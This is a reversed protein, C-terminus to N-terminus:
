ILFRYTNDARVWMVLGLDQTARYMAAIIQMSSVFKVSLVLAWFLYRGLKVTCPIRTLTWKKDEDYHPWFLLIALGIASVM